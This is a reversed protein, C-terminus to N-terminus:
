THGCCTVRVAACLASATPTLGRHCCQPHWQLAAHLSPLTCHLTTPNLLVLRLLAACLPLMCAVAGLRGWIPLVWLWLLQSTCLGGGLGDVVRCGSM